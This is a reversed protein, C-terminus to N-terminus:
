AICTQRKKKQTLHRPLSCIGPLARCPPPTGQLYNAQALPPPAVRHNALMRPGFGPRCHRQKIRIFCVYFLMFDHASYLRLLSFAVRNSSYVFAPHVLYPHHVGMSAGCSTSRDDLAVPSWNDINFLPCFTICGRITPAM